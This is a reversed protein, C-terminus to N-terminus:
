KLLGIAIKALKVAEKGVNYMDKALVMRFVVDDVHTADKKYKKLETQFETNYKTFNSEIVKHISLYSSKAVAYDTMFDDLDEVKDVKSWKDIFDKLNNFSHDIITIETSTLEVSKIKHIINGDSVQVISEKISKFGDFVACGTVLSISLILTVILKKM